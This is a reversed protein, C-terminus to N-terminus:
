SCSCLSHGLPFSHKQQILKDEGGGEKEREREEAELVFTFINWSFHARKFDAGDIWFLYVFLLLIFAMIMNCVRVYMNPVIRYM